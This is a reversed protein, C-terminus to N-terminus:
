KSTESVGLPFARRFLQALIEAGSRMDLCPKEPVLAVADFCDAYSSEQWLRQGLEACAQSDLAFLLEKELAHDPHNIELDDVLANIPKGDNDDMDAIDLDLGYDKLIRIMAKMKVVDDANSQSHGNMGEFEHMVSFVPTNTSRLIGAATNASGIEPKFSAHLAGCPFLVNTESAAQTLHEALEEDRTKMMDKIEDTVGTLLGILKQFYAQKTKLLARFDEEVFIEKAGVLASLETVLTDKVGLGVLALHEFKFHLKDSSDVARITFGQKIAEDILGEWLSDTGSQASLAAKAGAQSLAQITDTDFDAFFRASIDDNWAEAKGQIEKLWLDARMGHENIFQNFGQPAEVALCTYGRAKLDALQLELNQNAYNAKANGTGHFSGACYVVGSDPNGARSRAKDELEAINTEAARAQARLELAETAIEQVDPSLEVETRSTTKAQALFSKTKTDWTKGVFAQKSKSETACALAFQLRNSLDGTELYQRLSLQTEKSNLYTVLDARAKFEFGSYSFASITQPLLTAFDFVLDDGQAQPFDEIEVKRPKLLDDLLSHIQSQPQVPNM